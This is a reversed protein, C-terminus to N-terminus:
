RLDRSVDAWMILSRIAAQGLDRVKRNGRLRANCASFNTHFAFLWAIHEFPVFNM